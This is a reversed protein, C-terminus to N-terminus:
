SRSLSLLRVPGEANLRGAGDRKRCINPEHTYCGCLAPVHGPSECFWERMIRSGHSEPRTVCMQFHLVVSSVCVRFGFDGGRYKPAPNRRSAVRCHRPPDSWSGGRFVRYTGITPGTPNNVPSSSYYTSRYWDNCWEWVNGAMDYLGYGNAGSTTQYSTDDGPWNYDGKYKMTGDFFGVPSTYPSVGDWLPHYGRTPSIDYSYFSHSYYNAQSHTITDGWPFRKGSLSGRAAYEWEAETPMRYGHKSFDCTWTSLNYCQEKSEQVSRWNCYAVAGYWSVEVMPDDTMNRGGKTRVSFTGGSFDIQSHTDYSHTNCYPYSNSSDSSAYVVGSVVKIQAPYAGNLYDCYQQNTTEYTSMYFSDLTVTHVPLEDTNGEPDFSDGMQFTGGPIFAMGPLIPPECEDPIGNSNTDQSFGSAIDCEDPVYNGNCDQSFGSDIDESDVIGNGNCDAMGLWNAVLLALDGANVQGSTDLDACDCYNTLECDTDLWRGALGAFDLLNIKEDFNLDGLPGPITVMLQADEDAVSYFFQVTENDCSEEEFPFVAYYYTMAACVDADGCSEEDGEYVINGDNENEAFRDTRRVVRVGDFRTDTPNVWNLALYMFEDNLYVMSTGVFDVYIERTINFSITRYNTNDDTIMVNVTNDGYVLDIQGLFENTLNTGSLLESDYMQLGVCSYDPNWVVSSDLGETDAIDGFVQIFSSETSSEAPSVIEIGPPSEATSFNTDGNVLNWNVQTPYASSNQEAHVSITPKQEPTPELLDVYLTNATRATDTEGLVNMRAYVDVAGNLNPFDNEYDWLSEYAVGEAMLHYNTHHPIDIIDTTFTNIHTPPLPLLNEEYLHIEFRGHWANGGQNRAWVEYRVPVQSEPFTDMAAVPCFLKVKAGIVAWDLGGPTGHESIVDASETAVATFSRVWYYYEQTPDLGEDEDLWSGELLFMAVDSAAGLDDSTGRWVDFYRGEELPELAHVSGAMATLLVALLFCAAPKMLSRYQM